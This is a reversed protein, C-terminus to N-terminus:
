AQIFKSSNMEIIGSHSCRMKSSHGCNHRFSSVAIDDGAVCAHRFSSVAIDDGAM